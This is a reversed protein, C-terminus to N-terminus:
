NFFPLETFSEVGEPCEADYHKGDFYFWFHYEYKEPSISKDIISGWKDCFFEGDEDKAWENNLGTDSCNTFNAIELIYVDKFKSIREAFELCWGQNINKYDNPYFQGAQASEKKEDLFADREKIILETINM